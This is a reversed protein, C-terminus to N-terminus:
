CMLRINSIITQAPLIQAKVLIDKSLCNIKLGSMIVHASVKKLVPVFM